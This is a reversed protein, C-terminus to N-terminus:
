REPRDELRNTREGTCIRLRENSLFFIFKILSFTRPVERMRMERHIAVKDLGGYQLTLKIEENFATKNIKKNKEM